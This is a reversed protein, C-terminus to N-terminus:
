VGDDAPMYIVEGTDIVHKAFGSADNTEDLLHPEIDLFARNWRLNQLLIRTKYWADDDLASLFVAIDIDSESHLTGNVCSGFLIIKDPSLVKAVEKSYSDAIERVEAKDLM